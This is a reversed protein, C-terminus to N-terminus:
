RGQQLENALPSKPDIFVFEKDDIPTGFHADMLTVDVSNGQPDVVTWQRLQLPQDAFGLTISGSGPDKALVLRIRIAGPARSVGAVKIDGSLKIDPRVLIGALSSNLDQYSSQKEKKDVYVVFDHTTIIMQQSPPAYDLKLKGPRKIYLTGEATSGDTAVQLFRAQLTRISNLYSEIRSVDASNDATQAHVSVPSFFTSALLLCFILTGLASRRTLSGIKM